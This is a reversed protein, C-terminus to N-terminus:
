HVGLDLEDQHAMLLTRGMHRVAIRPGGALGSHNVRRAGLRADLRHRLRQGGFPRAGADAHGSPIVPLILHSARVADHYVTQDAVRMDTTTYNNQGTNLNRTFLPFAASAVDLRIRHGKRFVNSTPWLEITYEYVKGPEILIAQELSQRFKARVVGHVLRAAFGNPHM